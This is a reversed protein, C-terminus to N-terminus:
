FWTQVETFPSLCYRPRSGRAPTVSFAGRGERPKGPHAEWSLQFARNVQSRTSREPERLHATTWRSGAGLCGKLGSAKPPM